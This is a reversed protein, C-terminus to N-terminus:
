RHFLMESVRWSKRQWSSACIWASRASTSLLDGPTSIAHRGGARIEFFVRLEAPLPPGFLRDWADSGFGIVCSLGGELDRFEVARGLAALDACFSRLVARNGFGPNVTAVLFIAARTLPAAVPQAVVRLGHVAEPASM